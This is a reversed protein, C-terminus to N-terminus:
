ILYKMWTETASNIWEKGLINLKFPTNIPM